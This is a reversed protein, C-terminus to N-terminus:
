REWSADWSAYLLNEVALAATFGLALNDFLGM